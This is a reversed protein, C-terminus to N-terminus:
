KRVASSLVADETDHCREPKGRCTSVCTSLLPETSGKGLLSCMTWKGKFDKMQPLVVLPRHEGSDELM